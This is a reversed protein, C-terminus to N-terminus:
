HEELLTSDLFKKKKHSRDKKTEREQKKDQNSPLFLHSRCLEMGKGENLYTNKERKNKKLVRM